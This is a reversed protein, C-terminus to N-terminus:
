KDNKIFFCYSEPSFKGRLLQRKFYKTANNLASINKENSCTIALRFPENEMLNVTKRKFSIKYTIRNDVIEKEFKFKRLENKIKDKSVAYQDNAKIIFNQNLIYM